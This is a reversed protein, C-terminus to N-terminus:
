SPLLVIVTKTATDLTIAMQSACAEVTNQPNTFVATLGSRIIPLVLAADMVKGAGFSIPPASWFDRVGTAWAQAISAVTASKPNSMASYLTRALGNTEFGTLVVPVGAATARLAYNSYARALGQAVDSVNSGKAKFVKLLEVQLISLFVSLQVVRPRLSAISVVPFGFAIDQEIGIGLAHAITTTVPTGFDIDQEIGVGIPHLIQEADPTGLTIAQAIGVGTVVRDLVRVAVPTGLAVVQAIGVGLVNGSGTGVPTGLIITQSIGVGIPTLPNIDAVPTGLAVVQAIGVGESTVEQTAVPTGLAIVQAIGVGAIVDFLGSNPTGLDVVQAIGVGVANAVATVVPTGLVIDQEIGVMQATGANQASPTGLVIDQEIGVGITDLQLPLIIDVVLGPFNPQEGNSVSYDAIALTYTNTPLLPGSLSLTFTRGGPSFTVSTVTPASPGSITYQTTTASATALVAPDNSSFQLTLTNPASYYATFLMGVGAIGWTTVRHAYTDTEVSATTFDNSNFAAM